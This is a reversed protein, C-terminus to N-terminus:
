FRSLISCINILNVNETFLFIISGKSKKSSSSNAHTTLMHTILRNKRNFKTGCQECTFGNEGTHHFM